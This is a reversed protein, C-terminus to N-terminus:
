LKHEVEKLVAEAEELEKEKDRLYRKLSDRKFFWFYGGVIVFLGLVIWRIYPLVLEYSGVFLKALSILVIAYFISGIINFLMFVGRKMKTTGAVFPIIGRAYGNWKSLVIAWPGYKDLARGIYRVETKGVGFYQGFSDIFGEWRYKGILYGVIDGLIMSIAVVVIMQWFYTQAVFGGIVFLATQWPIPAGLLPVSEVFGLLFSLMWNGRGLTNVILELWMILDGLLSPYFIAIILLGFTLFFFLTKFLLSLIRFFLKM